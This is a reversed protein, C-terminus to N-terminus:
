RRLQRFRGAVGLFNECRVGPALTSDARMRYCTAVVDRVGQALERQLAATHAPDPDLDRLIPLESAAMTFEQRAGRADGSEFLQRMRAIHARIERAAANSRAEMPADPPLPRAAVSDGNPMLWYHRQAPAGARGAELRHAREIEPGLRALMSDVRTLEGLPIRGVARRISDALHVALNSVSTSEHGRHSPSTTARPPTATRTTATDSRVSTSVAIPAIGATAATAAANAAASISDREITARERRQRGRVSAIV